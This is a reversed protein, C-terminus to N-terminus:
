SRFLDIFSEDNKTKRQLREVYRRITYDPSGSGNLSLEQVAYDDAVPPPAWGFTRTTSLNAIVDALNTICAMARTSPSAPEPGHHFLVSEYLKPPLNWNKCLAGGVDAHDVGLLRKESELVDRGDIMAESVTELFAQRVYLSM